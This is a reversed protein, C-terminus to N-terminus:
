RRSRSAIRGSGARDPRAQDRKAYLPRFGSYGFTSAYAAVPLAIAFQALV